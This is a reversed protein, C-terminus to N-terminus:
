KENEGIPQGLKIEDINIIYDMIEGDRVPSPLETDIVRDSNVIVKVNREARLVTLSHWQYDNM